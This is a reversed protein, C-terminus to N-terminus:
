NVQLTITPVFEVHFLYKFKSNPLIYIKWRTEYLICTSVYRFLFKRKFVLWFIFFIFVRFYFFYFELLSEEIAFDIIHRSVHLIGVDGYSYLFYSGRWWWVLRSIGHTNTIGCFNFGLNRKCIKLVKTSLIDNQHRLTCIYCNYTCNVM